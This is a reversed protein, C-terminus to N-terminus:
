WGVSHNVDIRSLTEEDGYDFDKNFTRNPKREMYWTGNNSKESKVGQEMATEGM